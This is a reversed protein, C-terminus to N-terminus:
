DQKVINKQILFGEKKAITIFTDVLPEKWQTSVVATGDSLSLKDNNDLFYDKRNKQNQKLETEDLVARRMGKFNWVSKLDDITINPNQKVYDTIVALCLDRQTDYTKGNYTYSPKPTRLTNSVTKTNTGDSNKNKRPHNGIEYEVNIIKKGSDDLIKGDDYVAIAEIFEDFYYKGNKNKGYYIRLQKKAYEQLEPCEGVNKFMGRKLKHTKGDVTDWIHSSTSPTLVYNMPCTFRLFISTFLKKSDINPIRNSVNKLDRAYFSGYKDSHITWDSYDGRGDFSDAIDAIKMSKGNIDYGKGTDFIHAIYFKSVENSFGPNPGNSGDIKYAARATEEDDKIRKGTAKDKHKEREVPFRAPFKRTAMLEKFEEYYNDPDFKMLALKEFYAAFFNDSYFFSFGADTLNYFGRRLTKVDQIESDEWTGYTRIAFVPEINPDECYKKLFYFWKVAIKPEPLRPEIFDKWLEEITTAKGPQYKEIEPIEEDITLLRQELTM